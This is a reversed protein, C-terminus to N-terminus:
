ESQAKAAGSETTSAKVDDAAIVEQSRSNQPSDVCDGKQDEGLEGAFSVNILLIAMMLFVLNKM